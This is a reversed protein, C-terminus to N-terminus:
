KQILFGRRTPSEPDSLILRHTTASRASRNLHWIGAVRHQIPVAQSSESLSTTFVGPGEQETHVPAPSGESTNISQGSEVGRQRPLGSSIHFAINESSHQNDRNYDAPSEIQSCGFWLNRSIRLDDGRMLPTAAILGAVVHLPNVRAVSFIGELKVQERSL